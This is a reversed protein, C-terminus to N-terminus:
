HLDLRTKGSIDGKYMSCISSDKLSSGHIHSNRNERQVRFFKYGSRNYDAAMEEEAISNATASGGRDQPRIEDELLGSLIAHIRGQHEVYWAM